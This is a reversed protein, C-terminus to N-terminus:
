HRDANGTLHNAPVSADGSPHEPQSGGGYSGASLATESIYHETEAPPATYPSELYEKARDHSNRFAKRDLVAQYDAVAAQRDGLLDNVRGRELLSVSLLWNNAGNSEADVVAGLPTTGERPDGVAMGAVKARFKEAFADAVAGTGRGGCGVLALKITSNQGPHVLPMAVGAMASVAATKGAVRLFERRSTSSSPDPPVSMTM